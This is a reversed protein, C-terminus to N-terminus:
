GNRLCSPSGRIRWAPWKERWDIAARGGGSVTAAPPALPVPEPGPVAPDAARGPATTAPSAFPVPNSGSEWIERSSGPRRSSRPSERVGLAGVLGSGGLDKRGAVWCPAGLCQVRFFPCRPVRPASAHIMHQPLM